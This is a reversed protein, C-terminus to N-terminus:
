PLGANASEIGDILEKDQKLIVTNTKLEPTFVVAFSKACLQLNKPYLAEILTSQEGYSLQLLMLSLLGLFRHM